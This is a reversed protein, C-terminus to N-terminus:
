WRWHQGASAPTILNLTGLEDDKGWRGLKVVGNALSRITTESVLPRVAIRCAADGSLAACNRPAFLISVARSFVLASM